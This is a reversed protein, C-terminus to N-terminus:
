EDGRSGVYKGYGEVRRLSLRMTRLLDFALSRGHFEVPLISFNKELYLLLDVLARRDTPMVTVLNRGRYQLEGFAEATRTRAAEILAPPLNAFEAESEWAIAKAYAARAAVHKEMDSQVLERTRWHMREPEAAAPSNTEDDQKAASPRGPFNVVNMGPAGRRDVPPFMPREITM